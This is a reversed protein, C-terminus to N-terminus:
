STLWSYREGGPPFGQNKLSSLEREVGARIPEPLNAPPINPTPGEYGDSKQTKLNEAVAVACAISKTAAGLSSESQLVLEKKKPRTELNCNERM